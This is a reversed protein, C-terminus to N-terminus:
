LVESIEGHKVHFTKYDKLISTNVLGLETATIFVQANLSSLLELFSVRFGPDLEAPLDDVLLACSKASKQQYLQVQSLLLACTVLKQQGGSGFSAVPGQEMEIKIDARHPGRQTYGANLDKSFNKNLYDLYNKAEKSWGREFSLRTIKVTSCLMKDVFDFFIPKLKEIYLQRQKTIEEALVSLEKDWIKILEEKQNQLSANRQKLVKNYRKWTQHFGHEVHFVGWDLCRRRQKEGSSLLRGTDSGLFLLPFHSALAASSRIPKGDFRITAKKEKDYQFGVVTNTDHLELPSFKGVIMLAQSDRSILQKLLHTRFSRGRGLLYIAELITTKGSGNSGYILNIQSGPQIRQQNINRVNQLNLEILSM